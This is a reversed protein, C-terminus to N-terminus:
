VPPTVEPLWRRIGLLYPLVEEFEQGRNLLSRGGLLWGLHIRWSPIFRTGISVLDNDPL